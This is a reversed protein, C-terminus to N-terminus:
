VSFGCYFLMLSCVFMSCAYLITECSCFYCFFLFTSLFFQHINGAPSITVAPDQTDSSTPPPSNNLKCFPKNELHTKSFFSHNQPLPPNLALQLPLPPPLPLLAPYHYNQNFFGFQHNSYQFLQHHHQFHYQYQYQYQYHHHKHATNNTRGGRLGKNSATKTTCKKNAAASSEETEEM